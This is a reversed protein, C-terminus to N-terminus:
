DVTGAEKFQDNEIIGTLRRSTVSAGEPCVCLQRIPGTSNSGDRDHPNL